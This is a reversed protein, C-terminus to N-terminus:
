WFLERSQKLAESFPLKQGPTEDINKKLSLMEYERLYIEPFLFMEKTDGFTHVVWSFTAVSFTIFVVSPINLSSAFDAAWPQNYDYIVLDPNLALQLIDSFKPAAMEFAEKLTGM